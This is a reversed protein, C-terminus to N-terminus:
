RSVATQRRIHRTYGNEVFWDFADRVTTEFDRYHYGLEAVARESSFNHPLLSSAAAASNIAPERSMFMGALDGFWGAIRVAAPPAMALPPKSGAVRSFVKWAELYSLRHGGLIYRRGARGRTAALLIGEAVDRVDVFDNSGPPAFAGKGAAVELLMRGSSPKWDWPGLMYVPNVIVADLGREVESLVATEAERKTIVYPCEHLGGQATNEDAPLGDNRLGIADVSSVHVLKARSVRAAKAVCLSGEVNAKWMEARHRRGIHVMAAAHVVLSVGDCVRRLFRTDDIQGEWIEVPLGVLSKDVGSQGHPGHAEEPNPSSRHKLARTKQPTSRNPFPWPPSKERTAPSRPRVVARIKVGRAALLRVVNNGVLGTAGTM